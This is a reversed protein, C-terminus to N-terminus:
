RRPLIASMWVPFSATYSERHAHRRTHRHTHTGRLNGASGQRHIKTERRGRRTTEEVNGPQSICLKDTNKERVTPYKFYEVLRERERERKLPNFRPRHKHPGIKTHDM